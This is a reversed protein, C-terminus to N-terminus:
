WAGGGGGGGGGGSSGGGGGGSRSGPATSSSSIASSLSSGVSGAFGGMRSSDWASGSYWHPRYGAGGSPQSAAALVDAFQETWQQEVDLALAYPLYKEYVEPTRGGPYMRQLRDKETASLFMKFGEIRDLMRRGMLTPAKLLHYFLINVAGVVLPLGALAPSSQSLTFLAFAEAGFFPLSFLTMFIAAGFSGVRTGLSRSGSFVQRWLKTVLTALFIVGISWGTLWIGLFLVEGQEIASLFAGAAVAVSLIVGAVFARRNNVFHSKEFAFTLSTKLANKAAAITAHNRRELVISTGSRFLQSLIRQEDPSLKSAAGSNKTLTYKSDADAIGLHGKVAM